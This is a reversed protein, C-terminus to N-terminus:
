GLFESTPLGKVGPNFSFLSGALPQAMMDAEQLGKSATTIFLTDLQEGGFTCSTVNAVPLPISVLIKGQPSFRSINWGGFFCVWLCNECDITMGDPYGLHHPVKIFPRKNRLCGDELLDFKYIIRNVTDTHYLTKYDTSFAPGNTIVYHNDMPAYSGISDLRYLSGTPSLEDHDMTGVWYRGKHDVKGDNFRNSPIHPEIQMLNELKHSRLNLACVFHHSTCIYGGSRRKAISTLATDFEWNEQNGNGINYYHLHKSMIDLWIIANEEEVWLPGEGLLNNAKCLCRIHSM